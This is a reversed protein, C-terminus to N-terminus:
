LSFEMDQAVNVMHNGTPPMDVLITKVAMPYVHTFNRYPIPYFVWGRAVAQKLLLSESFWLHLFVSFYPSLRDM